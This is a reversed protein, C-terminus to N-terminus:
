AAMQEAWTIWAPTDRRDNPASSFEGIENAMYNLAIGWAFRLEELLPHAGNLTKHGRLYKAIEPLIPRGRHLLEALAHSRSVKALLGHCDHVIDDDFRKCLEEVSKGRM